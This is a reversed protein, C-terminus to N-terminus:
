KIVTEEMEKVQKSLRGNEATLQEVEQAMRENTQHLAETQTLKRQQLAAYPALVAGLIGSVWVTPHSTAEFLVALVSTVCSVAATGAVAREKLSEAKMEQLPAPEGASSLLPTGEGAELDARLRGNTVANANASASTSSM